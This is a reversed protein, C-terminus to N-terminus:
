LLLGSKLTLFTSQSMVSLSIWHFQTSSVTYILCAQTWDSYIELISLGEVVDAKKIDLAKCFLRTSMRLIMAAKQSLTVHDFKVLQHRPPALWSGFWSKIMRGLIHKVQYENRKSPASFFYVFSFLNKGFNSNFVFYWIKCYNFSISRFQVFNFLISRFQVFNFSISRIQVFSEKNQYSHRIVSTIFFKSSKPIALLKTFEEGTILKNQRKKFPLCTISVANM